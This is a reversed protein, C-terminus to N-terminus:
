SRRNYSPDYRPSYIAIVSRIDATRYFLYKQENTNKTHYSLVVLLPLDKFVEREKKEFRKGSLLLEPGLPINNQSMVSIPASLGDKSIFKASDLYVPVPRHEILGLWGTTPIMLLREKVIKNNVLL